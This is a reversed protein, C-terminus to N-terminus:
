APESRIPTEPVALGFERLLAIWAARGDRSAFKSVATERAAARLRAAAEPNRCAAIMAETLADVEFFPLLRGNVGDEVADRLPPTDSGIVYCGSAMAEVLSWSLVFPYSYYVHATSLRLAALMQAHATRGLFHLRSRDLELGGFAIERWTKGEPPPGGYPRPNEQGFVLVQVDPVQAMLGPLARAFIHLGRMPEMNNNVYTIVPTGPAIVRGDPLPFPEAPGPWIADVDIGEHIVRVLPQFIAPLTSAQFATPAVIAAADCFALAMIASKAKGRLVADETTEFFEDDFDIDLGRGQYFLEAFLVQKADPWVEDLFVTEGWGPHGVIVQPEFGEAKLAKAMRLAGAGRILDAEARVAFPLIGPTTGRDLAYRGIRLGQLGPATTQGIAACPVGRSTLTQALDRFQAPFNNHVFLVGAGM